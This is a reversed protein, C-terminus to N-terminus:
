KSEVVGVTGVHRKRSAEELEEWGELQEKRSGLAEIKIACLRESYQREFGQFLSTELLFPLRLKLM